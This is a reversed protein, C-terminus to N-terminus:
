FVSVYVSYYILYEHTWKGSDFDVGTGVYSGLTGRLPVGGGGEKLSTLAPSNTGWFLTLMGDM